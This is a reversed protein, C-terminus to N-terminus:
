SVMSTGAQLVAPTHSVMAGSPTRLGTAVDASVSISISACFTSILSRSVRLPRQFSFSSWM